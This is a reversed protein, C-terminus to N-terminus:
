APSPRTHRLRLLARGAPTLTYATEDDLGGVTSQLLRLRQLRELVASVDYVRADLEEAVDSVALAFGPALRAYLRLAREEDGSLSPEEGDFTPEKRV